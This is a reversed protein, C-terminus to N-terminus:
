NAVVDLSFCPPNVDMREGGKQTFFCEEFSTKKAPLLDLLAQLFRPWAFVEAVEMKRYFAEIKAFIVMKHCRYRWSYQEWCSVSCVLWFLLIGKNLFWRKKKRFFQKRTKSFYDFNSKERSSAINRLLTCLPMRSNQSTHETEQQSCYEHLYWHWLITM